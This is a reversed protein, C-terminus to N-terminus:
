TTEIGIGHAMRGTVPSGISHGQRSKQGGRGPVQASHLVQHRRVLSSVKAEALVRDIERQAEFWVPFAACVHRRKCNDPDASCDNLPPLDLARLIDLVSIEDADRGLTLGGHGGRETVLLGRGALDRAVKRLFQYPIGQRGAIEATTLPSGQHAAVEIMLRVAYDARRTVQLM